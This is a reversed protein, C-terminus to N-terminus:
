KREPSPSLLSKNGTHLCSLFAATDFWDKTDMTFSYLNRMQECIEQEEEETTSKLSPILVVRMDQFRYVPNDGIGVLLSEQSNQGVQTIGEGAKERCFDVAQSLLNRFIM